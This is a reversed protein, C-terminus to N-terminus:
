QSPQLGKFYPHKLADCATIRKSPLFCLMRSLLDLGPELGSVLDALDYKHPPLTKDSLLELCAATVGEWEEESPVDFIRIIKRLVIFDVSGPFLRKGKVMEAFICGVSWIDVATTTQRTSLLLEPAKYHVTTVDISYEPPATDFTRTHGFDAIKITNTQLDLLLNEPKLDRHLIKQSHCYSVGQLIQFLFDKIQHSKLSADKIILKSLDCNLYEFVLEVGEPEEIVDLLRVVKPHDLEKLVSVERLIVSPLGDSKSEYQIRKVAVLSNFQTVYCRYVKGYAGKGILYRGQFRADNWDAM